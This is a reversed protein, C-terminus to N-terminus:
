ITNFHNCAHHVHCSDGEQALLFCSLWEWWGDQWSGDCSSLDTPYLTATGPSASFTLSKSADCCSPKLIAPSICYIATSSGHECCAGELSCPGGRASIAEGPSLLSTGCTCPRRARGDSWGEPGPNARGFRLSWIAM